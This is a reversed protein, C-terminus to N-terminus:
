EDSSYVIKMMYHPRLFHRASRYREFDKFLNKVRIFESFGLNISVSKLKARYVISFAGHGIVLQSSPIIDVMDSLKIM